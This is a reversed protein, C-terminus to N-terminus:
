GMGLRVQQGRHLFNPDTLIPIGGYELIVTATGIFFISGRTLDPTASGIPLVLSRSTSM